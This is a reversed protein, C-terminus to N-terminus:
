LIRTRKGCRVLVASSRIPFKSSDLMRRDYYKM